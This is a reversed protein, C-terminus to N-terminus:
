CPPAVSDSRLFPSGLEFDLDLDTHLKCKRGTDANPNRQTSRSMECFCQNISVRFQSHRCYAPTYGAERGLTLRSQSWRGARGEFYFSYQYHISQIFLTLSWLLRSSHAHEWIMADAQKTLRRGTWPGLEIKGDASLPCWVASGRGAAQCADRHGTVLSVARCRSGDNM